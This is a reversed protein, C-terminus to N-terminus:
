YRKGFLNKVQQKGEAKKAKNNFIYWIKDGKNCVCIIICIAM